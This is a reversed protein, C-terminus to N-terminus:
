IDLRYGSGYVTKLMKVLPPIKKRLEKIHSDITRDTIYRESWVRDLITERTLVRGQNEVFLRLMGIEKATLPIRLKGRQVEQREWQVTCDGLVTEEGPAIGGGGTLRRKVRARLVEKNFPKMVFDDAGLELGFTESEPETKSTLFIIPINQTDKNRRLRLCTQFGDMGPMLIDLLVLHPKHEVAMDLAELGNRAQVIEYEDSFIDALMDRNEPDDDVVLLKHERM